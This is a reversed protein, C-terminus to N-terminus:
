PITIVKATIGNAAIVHAVVSYHTNDSLRNAALLKTHDAPDRLLGDLDVVKTIGGVGEQTLLWANVSTRIGPYTADPFADSPTLTCLVINTYGDAQRAAIFAAYDAQAAALNAWTPISNISHNSVLVVASDVVQGTNYLVLSSAQALTMGSIGLVDVSWLNNRGLQVFMSQERRVENSPSYGNALSDGMCVLRRRATKFGTVRLSGVPNALYNLSGPITSGDSVNDQYGGETIGLAVNFQSGTPSGMLVSLFGGQGQGTGDWPGMVLTAGNAGVNQGTFSAFSTGTPKVIGSPGSIGNYIWFGLGSVGSAHPTNAFAASGNSFSLYCTAGLDDPVPIPVATIRQPTLGPITYGQSATSRFSRQSPVTLAASGVVGFMTATVTASGTGVTSLFGGATGNTISAVGANSCAWTVASTVNYSSGDSWNGTAVFQQSTNVLVSPAAPSVSISSLTVCVKDEPAAAPGDHNRFAKGGVTFNVTAVDVSNDRKGM